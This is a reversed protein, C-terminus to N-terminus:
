WNAYENDTLRFCFDQPFREINRKVAQNLVRTEVGYLTALDRDIMVQKGRIKYISHQIDITKTLENKGDENGHIGPLNDKRGLM